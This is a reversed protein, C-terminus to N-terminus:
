DIFSNIWELVEPIDVRSSYGTGSCNINNVYSNVGLVVNTGRLLDPGGSDGFCLGGSDGGPNLALRLFEASHVFNGSVLESPAYLRNYYGDWRYFPPPQPLQSGPIQAQFQVGYGVFDVRTKNKLTDVLGAAPLAAFGGVDVPEDLVVIGVDRYAYTRVGNGSFPTNGYDPNTHPTGETSEGGGFPFDSVLFSFDEDQLREEFWIRAAVAGDTCHGATLVVTPSLLAGSCTWAPVVGVGPIDADFVLLGIYPHANGDPQGSTIAAAGGVLSLVLTLTLVSALLVKKM